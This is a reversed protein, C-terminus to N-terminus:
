LPKQKKFFGPSAMDAVRGDPQLYIFYAQLEPHRRLFRLSGALGMVMFANDYGDATLADKAMVTVSILENRIPYGTQPNIIHTIPTNGQKIFNRYSGSTTIAGQRMAVMRQRGAKGAPREIAIQMWQGDPKQGKVRIEGGLEVLYNEINNGELFDAIVDVSYGQAIGNVDIQVCPLIKHLKDERIYIKGPGICPKIAAIAASDPLAENREPGFGWAKVVPYVTIDFLGNTAQGIELSKEVVQRLHRDLAVATHVKNFRTILSYPKYVSLSSDIQNLLSDIQKKRIFPGEAYYTLHYTTGQAFGTLQHASQSQGAGPVLLLSIFICAMMAPKM